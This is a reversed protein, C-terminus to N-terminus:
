RAAVPSGGPRPGAAACPMPSSCRLWWNWSWSRCTTCRRTRRDAPVSSAAMGPYVSEVLNAVAVAAIVLAVGSRVNVPRIHPATFRARRGAMRPGTALGCGFALFHEVDWLLGSKLVLVLLCTVMALRIRRAGLPSMMATAAGLVGIAGASLGLDVQTAAHAAWPWNTDQLMRLAVATAVTAGLQAGVFVTAARWGGVRREYWSLGVALLLGVVLYFEPRPLVMAGAGFTWWHQGLQPAGYSIAQLAPNDADVAQWLTRTAVGMALMVAIVSSTFPASRASRATRLLVSSPSWSFGDTRASRGRERGLPTMAAPM